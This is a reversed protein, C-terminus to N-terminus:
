EDYARQVQGAAAPTRGEVGHLVTDVASTFENDLNTWDRGLERALRPFRTAAAEILWGPAPATHQSSGALLSFTRAIGDLLLASHMPDAISAHDLERLLLDVWALRHPYRPMGSVRVDALWPHITYRRWLQRAWVHVRSKWDDGHLEPPPGVAADVMLDLLEDKSELYRYLATTTLGLDAAVAALSVGPLGHADALSVASDAIDSVDYRARPGRTSPPALGWVRRLVRSSGEQSHM